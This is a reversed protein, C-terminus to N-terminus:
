DLLHLTDALENVDGSEGPFHEALMEGCRLIGDRLGDAPKGTKFGDIITDCVAQWDDQSLRASIADDGVVRVMREYLSVYILIGTAGATKRVRLRQFTEHARREVEEQMERRSILPLRLLPFRTALAIGVLFAAALIVLVWPLNLILAPGGSWAEASLGVEQLGIWAITLTVLALLFAFLDEARDYRGSATAVVPVVEGSTRREAEAIAAEITEIQAETFLSTAHTM